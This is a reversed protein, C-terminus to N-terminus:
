TINPIYLGNKHLSPGQKNLSFGTKVQNQENKATNEKLIHYERDSNEASLIQNELDSEYTSSAFLLNTHRSLADAVKDEKGKIHKIEFDYKSLFSLWIAHRANLNQQDFLYKLSINDSM